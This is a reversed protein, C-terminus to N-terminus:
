PGSPWPTRVVAAVQDFPVPEVRDQLRALARVYPEPLLDPRTSLLQGLKVFTPGLRELERVLEEAEARVGDDDRLEPALVEELGAQRVLDSRGHRWLLRAVDRYRTLNERSLSIGV